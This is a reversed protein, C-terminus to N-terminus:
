IFLHSFLNLFILIIHKAFGRLHKSLKNEVRYSVDFYKNIINPITAFDEEKICIDSTFNTNNIENNIFLPSCKKTILKQQDLWSLLGM